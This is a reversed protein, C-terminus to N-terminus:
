FSIKILKKHSSNWSVNVTIIQREANYSFKLNEGSATISKPEQAINHIIWAIQKTSEKYKKGLTNESYLEIFHEGTKYGFKMLEFAGNEFSNNTLGDDNFLKTESTKVKEDYYFHLKLANGFYEKTSQMAPAM